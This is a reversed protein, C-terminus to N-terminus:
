QTTCQPIGNKTPTKKIKGTHVNNPSIPMSGGFNQNVCCILVSINDQSKREMAKAILEQAARDITKHDYLQRRVFNVAEQSSIVDWLGLRYRFYIFRVCADGFYKGDSALIVFESNETM